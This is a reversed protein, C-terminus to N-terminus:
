NGYIDRGRFYLLRFTRLCGGLMNKVTTAV